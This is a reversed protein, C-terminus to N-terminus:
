PLILEVGPMEAIVAVDDAYARSLHQVTDDSWGPIDLEPTPEPARAHAELFAEITKRRRPESLESHTKLFTRLRELGDPTIIQELADFAGDLETFPDHASLERILEAWIFHADEYRWVVIRAGPNAEILEMVVDAWILRDLRLVDTAAERDDESLDALVAPVFTAPDRLTLAFEVEHSPFCQRLWASKAVKPYLGETSLVKSARCLFNENSLLIRDATDDDRIAELLMTETEANAPEGRLTTSVDGLLERYRGPGPVGIGEIALAARNRLISRILLGGDTCHAGLHFLIQM